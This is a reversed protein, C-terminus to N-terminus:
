ANKPVNAHKTYKAIKKVWDAEIRQEVGDKRVVIDVLRASQTRPDHRISRVMYEFTRKGLALRLLLSRIKNQM